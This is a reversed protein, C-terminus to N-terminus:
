LEKWQIKGERERKVPAPGTNPGATERAKEQKRGKIRWLCKRSYIKQGDWGMRTDAEWLVWSVCVHFYTLGLFEFLFNWNSSSVRSTDAKRIYRILSSQFLPLTSAQWLAWWCSPDNQVQSDAKFSWLSMLLVLLPCSALTLYVITGPEFGPLIYCFGIAMQPEESWNWIKSRFWM